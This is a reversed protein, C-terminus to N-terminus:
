SFRKAMVAFQEDNAVESSELGLAVGGITGSIVRGNTDKTMTTNRDNGIHQITPRLIM